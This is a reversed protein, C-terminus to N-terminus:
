VTPGPVDGVASLTPGHAVCPVIADVELVLLSLQEGPHDLGLRPSPKEPVLAAIRALAESDRAALPLRPHPCALSM